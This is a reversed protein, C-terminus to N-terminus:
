FRRQLMKKMSMYENYEEESLITKLYEEGFKEDFVVPNQRVKERWTDVILKDKEEGPLNDLEKYKHYTELFASCEVLKDNLVKKIEGMKFEERMIKIQYLKYQPEDEKLDQLKKLYLERRAESELYDFYLTIMNKIRVYLELKAQQLRSYETPYEKKNLVFERIQYPTMGLYTNNMIPIINKQIDEYISLKDEELLTTIAEEPKKEELLEEGM